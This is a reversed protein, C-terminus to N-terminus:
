VDEELVEWPAKIALDLFKNFHSWDRTNTSFSGKQSNNTGYETRKDEIYQKLASCVIAQKSQKERAWAEIVDTRTVERDTAVQQLYNWATDTLRLTRLKKAEGSFKQKFEGTESREMSTHWLANYDM